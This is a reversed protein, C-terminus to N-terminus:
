KIIFKYHAHKNNSANWCRVAIIDNKKLDSTEIYRIADKVSIDRLYMDDCVPDYRNYKCGVIWDYFCRYSYNFDLRRDDRKLSFVKNNWKDNYVFALDIYEWQERKIHRLCKNNTSEILCVKNRRHKNLRYNDYVSNHNAIADYDSNYQEKLRAVVNPFLKADSETTHQIIYVDATTSFNSIPREENNFDEEYLEYLGDFLSRLFKNRYEEDHRQLFQSFERYENYDSLYIKDIGAM